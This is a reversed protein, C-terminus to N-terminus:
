YFEYRISTIIQSGTIELTDITKSDLRHRYEFSMQGNVAVSIKDRKNCLMLDFHTGLVFPFAGELNVEEYEYLGNRFSNRVISRHKPRISMHFPITRSEAKSEILNIVFYEKFALPLMGAIYINFEGNMRSDYELYPLEPASVVRSTIGYMEPSVLVINEEEGEITPSTTATVTSKTTNTSISRTLYNLEKRFEVQDISINGRIHIRTIDNYPHRHRFAFSHRGDVAIKFCDRDVLIMLKFSRGTSFPFRADRIEEEWSGNVRSNMVVCEEESITSFRPNFHFAIQNQREAQGHDLLDGSEDIADINNSESTSLNSNDTQDAPSPHRDSHECRNLIFDIQFRIESYANCPCCNCPIFLCACVAAFRKNFSHTPHGNIAVLMGEELHGGGPITTCLPLSPKRIVSESSCPDIINTTHTGTLDYALDHIRTTLDSGVNYVYNFLSSM